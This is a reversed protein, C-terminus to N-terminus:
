AGRRGETREQEAMRDKVVKVFTLFVQREWPTLVSLDITAASPSAGEGAAVRELTLPEWGLAKEIAVRNRTWPWRMGAELTRITKEDVGAAAALQEQTMNLEGRRAQVFIGARHIDRDAMAYM